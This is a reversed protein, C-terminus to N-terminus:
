GGAVKAILLPSGVAIATMGVSFVASALSGKQFDSYSPTFKILDLFKLVAVSYIMSGVSLGAIWALIQWNTTYAFNAAAITAEHIRQDVLAEIAAKTAEDM